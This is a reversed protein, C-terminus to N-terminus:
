CMHGIAGIDDGFGVMVFASSEAVDVDGFIFMFAVSFYLTTDGIILSFPAHCALWKYLCVMASM